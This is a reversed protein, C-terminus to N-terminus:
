CACRSLVKISLIEARLMRTVPRKRSSRRIGTEGGASEVDVMTDALGGFPDADPEADAEIRVAGPTDLQLLATNIAQLHATLSLKEEFTICYGM